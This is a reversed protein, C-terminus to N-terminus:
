QAHMVVADLQFRCPALFPHDIRIAAIGVAAHQGGQDIEAGVPGHDPFGAAAHGGDAQVDIIVGGAMGPSKVMRPLITRM